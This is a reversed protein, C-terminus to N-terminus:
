KKKRFTLSVNNPYENIIFESDKRNESFDVISIDKKAIDNEEILRKAKDSLIESKYSADLIRKILRPNIDEYFSTFSLTDSNGDYICKYPFVNNVASDISIILPSYSIRNLRYQSTDEFMSGSTSRLLTDLVKTFEEKKCEDIFAPFGDPWLLEYEGKYKGVETSVSCKGKLIQRLAKLYSIDKSRLVANFYLRNERDILSEMKYISGDYILMSTAKDLESKVRKSEERLGLLIEKASYEKKVM